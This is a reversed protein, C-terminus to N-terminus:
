ISLPPSKPRFGVRVALEYDDGESVFHSVIEAMETYALSQYHAIQRHCAQLVPIRDCPSLEARDIGALAEALGLGPELRELVKIELGMDWRGSYRVFTRSDLLVNAGWSRNSPELSAECQSLGLVVFLLGPNM